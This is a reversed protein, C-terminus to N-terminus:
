IVDEDGSFKQGATTLADEKSPASSSAPASKAKHEALQDELEKTPVTAKFSVGAVALEHMIQKRNPKKSEAEKVQTATVAGTPVVYKWAKKAEFVEGKKRMAGECFIDKTAKVQM